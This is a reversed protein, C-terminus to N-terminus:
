AEATSKLAVRLRGEAERSLPGHWDKPGIGARLAARLADPVPVGLRDALERIARTRSEALRRVMEPTVGAIPAIERLSAGSSRMQAILGDRLQREIALVAESEVIRASLAALQDRVVPSETVSRVIERLEATVRRVADSNNAVESLEDLRTQLDPAVVHEAAFRGLEDLQHQLSASSM